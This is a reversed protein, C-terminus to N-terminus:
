SNLETTINQFEVKLQVTALLFLNVSINNLNVAPYLVISFNHCVSSSSNMFSIFVYLYVSSFSCFSVIVQDYKVSKVAKINSYRYTYNM